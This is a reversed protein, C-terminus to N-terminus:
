GHVGKELDTGLPKAEVIVQAPGNEIVPQGYLVYDAHEAM